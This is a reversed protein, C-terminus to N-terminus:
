LSYNLVIGFEFLFQVHVHLYIYMTGTFTNILNLSRHIGIGPELFDAISKYETM